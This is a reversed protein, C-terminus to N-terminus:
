ESRLLRGHERSDNKHRRMAEQEARTYANLRLFGRFCGIDYFGSAQEIASTIRERCWPYDDHSASPDNSDTRRCLNRGGGFDDIEAVRRQEGAENVRVGM